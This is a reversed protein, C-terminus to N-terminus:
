QWEKRIWGVRWFLRKIGQCFYVDTRLIAFRWFVFDTVNSDKTRM